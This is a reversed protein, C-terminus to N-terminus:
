SGLIILTEALVVHKAPLVPLPPRRGRQELRVAVGRWQRASAPRRDSRRDAQRHRTWSTIEAALWAAGCGVALAAEVRNTAWESLYLTFGYWYWRIYSRSGSLDLNAILNQRAYDYANSSGGAVPGGPRPPRHPQQLCSRGHAPRQRAEQNLTINLVETEKVFLQKIVEVFAPYAQDVRRDDSATMLRNLYIEKLDAEDFPYSVTSHQHLSAAPLRSSIKKPSTPSRRLWTTRLPTKSTSRAPVLCELSHRSGDATHSM